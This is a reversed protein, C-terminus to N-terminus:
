PKEREAGIRLTVLIAGAVATDVVVEGGARTWATVLSPALPLADASRAIGCRISLELDDKDVTMAVVVRRPAAAGSSADPTSRTAALNLHADLMDCMADAASPGLTPDEGDDVFEIRLASEAHREVVEEIRSRMYAPQREDGRLARRLRASEGRASLKAGGVDGVVIHDHVTKLAELAGAHLDAQLRVRAENRGREKATDVAEARLRAIQAATRRVRGTLIDGAIWCNFYQAVGLAMAMGHRKSSGGTAAVYTGALVATSVFGQRRREFAAAGGVGSMLTVPFMWNAANFQEEAPLALACLVLGIATCGVDVAATPADRYDRRRLTGQTLWTSEAALIAFASWALRPRSFRRRDFVLTLLASFVHYARLLLFVRLFMAEMPPPSSPHDLNADAHDSPSPCGGRFRRKGAPPRTMTLPTYLPVMKAARDMSTQPEASQTVPTDLPWQPAASPRGM